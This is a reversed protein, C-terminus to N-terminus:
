IGRNLVGGGCIKAGCRGAGIDGNTILRQVDYLMHEIDNAGAYDLNDMSSPITPTSPLRLCRDRIAQLTDIYVTMAARTPFDAHTWNTRLPAAVPSRGLIANAAKGVRNLDACGYSGKDNVGVDSATRDFILTM